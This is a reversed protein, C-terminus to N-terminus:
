REIVKLEKPLSTLVECGDETIVAMDEIRVGGKGPIYIGPEVTVVMGPALCEDALQSLRPGEHVEIGVGHGTSHGFEKGYGADAIISRAASDAERGTIGPKLAALAALQAELTVAYIEEFWSGPITGYAYTRTLDSCYGNLECGFDFLTIDGPSLTSSGPQGHPLSSRAGFLAIPPFSPGVAGRRQAEYTLWAGAEREPMGEALREILDVLIGEALHIAARILDIEDASKIARMGDVLDGADVLSGGFAEGLSRHAGVNLLGEECACSGAGLEALTDGLAKPLNSSFGQLSCNTTEAAAQETYRSDVLLRAEDATVVYGATSGTFGTMYQVTPMSLSVFAPVGREEMRTRLTDLRNSM